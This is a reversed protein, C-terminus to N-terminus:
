PTAPPSDQSKKGWLQPWLSGACPIPLRPPQSCQNANSPSLFSGRIHPDLAEEAPAATSASILCGDRHPSARFARPSSSTTGSLSSPPPCLEPSCLTHLPLIIPLHPFIWHRLSCSLFCIEGKRDKNRGKGVYICVCVCM